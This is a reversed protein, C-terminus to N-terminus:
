VPLAPQPEEAVETAKAPPVDPNAIPKKEDPSDWLERAEATLRYTGKGVKDVWRARVTRRLSNRVWSNAKDSPADSFCSTALANIPIPNLDAALVGLMRLEKENMDAKALQLPPGSQGSTPDAARKKTQKKPKAVKAVKAVKASAKKVARKAAKKKAAM